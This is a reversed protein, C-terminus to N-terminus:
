EFTCRRRFGFPRYEVGNGTYFEEFFEVFNLRVSQLAGEFTSLAMNLLHLSVFVLLYLVFIVIGSHVNPTVAENIVSAILMSTLGFGVIRVYSIPYIIMDVLKNLQKANVLILLLVSFLAIAGSWATTGNAFAGFILGSVYVTGSILAALLLLRAVAFRIKRKKISNWAGISLGLGVQSIGILISAAIVFNLNHAWDFGGYPLLYKDLAFGFYQDNFVGFLITFISAFAWINSMNHLLGDKETFRAIIISLILSLLGYGVDSIMLGYLIPFSVMLFFAPNIEDGRPASYMDLIYNFSRMIGPMEYYVPASEKTGVHEISFEDGLLQHLKGFLERERKAPIWGEMVCTDETRKLMRIADVNMCEFRLMEGICALRGYHEMGIEGLAADIRKAESRLQAQRAWLSEESDGSLTALIEKRRSDMATIREALASEEKAAKLLARLGLHHMRVCVGKPLAEVAHAINSSLIFLDNAYVPPQEDALRLGSRRFDIISMGNLASIAKDTDHRLVVIRIRLMQEPYIFSM